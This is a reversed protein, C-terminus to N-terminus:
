AGQGHMEIGTRVERMQALHDRGHEAQREARSHVTVPGTEPHIGARAWQEDSLNELQYALGAWFARLATLARRPDDERYRREVAWAEQDYPALTPNDEEVLRRVRVGEESVGDRLHCVIELVSWAEGAPRRRMQEDSLGRCAADVDDPVHRLTAIIEERDM